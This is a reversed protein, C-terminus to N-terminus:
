GSPRAHPAASMSIMLFCYCLSWKRSHYRCTPVITAAFLVASKRSSITATSMDDGHRGLASMARDSFSDRASITGTMVPLSPASSVGVNYKVYGQRAGNAHSTAPHLLLNFSVAAVALPRRRGHVRLSWVRAGQSHM